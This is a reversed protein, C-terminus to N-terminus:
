CKVHTAGICPLANCTLMHCVPHWYDIGCSLRHQGGQVYVLSMPARDVEGIKCGKWHYDRGRKVGCWTGTEIQVGSCRV